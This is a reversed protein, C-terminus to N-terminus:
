FYYVKAYFDNIMNNLIYGLNNSIEVSTFTLGKLSATQGDLSIDSIIM